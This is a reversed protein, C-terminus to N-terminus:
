ECRCQGIHNKIVPCLHEGFLAREGGDIRRGGRAIRLDIFLVFFAYFYDIDEFNM